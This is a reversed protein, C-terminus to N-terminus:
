CGGSSILPPVENDHSVTVEYGTSAGVCVDLVDAETGEQESLTASQSAYGGAALLTAFKASKAVLGYQLAWSPQKFGYGSSYWGQM